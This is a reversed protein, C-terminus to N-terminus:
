FHLQEYQTIPWSYHAHNSFSYSQLTTMATYIFSCRYLFQENRGFLFAILSFSFAGRHNSRHVFKFLLSHITTPQWQLFEILLKTHIHTLTSRAHQKSGECVALTSFILELTLSSQKEIPVCKWGKICATCRLLTQNLWHKIVTRTDGNLM